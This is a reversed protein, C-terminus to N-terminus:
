RRASRHSRPADPPWGPAVGFVEVELGENVKRLLANEARLAEVDAPPASAVGATRIVRVASVTPATKPVNPSTPVTSPSGRALWGSGFGFLLCAASLFLRRVTGVTCGDSGRVSGRSVAWPADPM